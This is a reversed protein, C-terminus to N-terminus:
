QAETAAATDAPSAMTADAGASGTDMPAADAAKTTHTADNGNAEPAADAAAADAAAVAQTAPTSAAKAAPEAAAAAAAAAPAAVHGEAVAAKTVAAALAATAAQPQEAAYQMAVHQLVGRVAHAVDPGRVSKVVVRIADCEAASLVGPAIAEAADEPAGSQGAGGAVAAPRGTVAAELEAALVLNDKDVSNAQIAALRKLLLAQQAHQQKRTTNDIVLQLLENFSVGTLAAALLGAQAGTPASVGGSGAAALAAGLGPGAGTLTGNATTAGDETATTARRLIPKGGIVVRSGVAPAAVGPVVPRGAGFGQSAVGAMGAQPSGLQPQMGGMASMLKRVTDQESPTTTRNMMSNPDDAGGQTLMAAAVGNAMTIPDGPNLPPLMSLGGPGEIALPRYNLVGPLTGNIYVPRVIPRETGLIRELHRLVDGLAAQALSTVKHLKQAGALVCVRVSVLRFCTRMPVAISHRAMAVPM